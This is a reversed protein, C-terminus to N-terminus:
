KRRTDEEPWIRYYFKTGLPYEFRMKEKLEAIYEQQFDRKFENAIQKVVTERDPIEVDEASRVLIRSLGCFDGDRENVRAIVLGEETEMPKTYGGAALGRVAAALEPPELKALDISMWDKWNDAYTKELIADESYNTAVNEWKGGKQLEEWACNIKKWADENIKKCREVRNSLNAFCRSIDKEKVELEPTQRYLADMRSERAFQHRFAPALEGFLPALEDVSKASRRMMRNYRALTAADSEATAGIGRSELDIEIAVAYTLGPAIRMAERNSWKGFPPTPKRTALERIKASILVTDKVFQATIPRGNVIAFAVDCLNTEAKKMETKKPEVKAATVEGGEREGCGSLLMLAFILSFAGYRLRNRSWNM